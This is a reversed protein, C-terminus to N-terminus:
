FRDFEQRVGMNFLAFDFRVPDNEDLKKLFGTLEKVAKWDSKNRKLIGLSDAVRLVHVDLPIYLSSPSINKWIGFDVGREPSRVMWRLYMNLRKVTSNREPSPVHKKTRHPAYPSDFFRKRFQNLGEELNEFTGERDKFANELSGYEEYMERLRHIFYLTDPPQFTRHKFKELRKLDHDTHNMIFEYPSDDMLAILENAKAIITKRLGWAFVAAFLGAIEIDQKKTFRHPVSIPDDPIFSVCEFQDAKKELLDKIKM